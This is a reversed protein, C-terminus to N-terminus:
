VDLLCSIQFLQIFDCVQISIRKEGYVSEGVAMNKTCLADEKGKALFVGDHRHPEVTVRSGGKMGGRGGRGGRGGGRGGGGRGVGRGGGGRGRGGGGRGGFDGGGRGGFDGRGRGRGGSASGGRFPSGGRGGPARM